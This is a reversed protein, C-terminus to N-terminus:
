PGIGQDFDETQVWKDKVDKPKVYAEYVDDSTSTSRVSMNLTEITRIREQPEAPTVFYELM